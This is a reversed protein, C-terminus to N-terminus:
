SGQDSISTLSQRRSIARPLVIACIALKRQLSSSTFRAAEMAYDKRGRYTRPTGDIRIEFQAGTMATVVRRKPMANSNAMWARWLQPTISGGRSVIAFAMMPKAFAPSRSGSRSHSRAKSAHELGIIM